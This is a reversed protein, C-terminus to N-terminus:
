RGNGAGAGEDLGGGDLGQQGGSSGSEGRGNASVLLVVDVDVNGQRGLEIALDLNLLVDLDILLLGGADLVEQVVARKLKDISGALLNDLQGAAEVLLLLSLEFM